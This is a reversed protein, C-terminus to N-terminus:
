KNSVPDEFSKEVLNAIDLRKERMVDVLAKGKLGFWEEKTAGVLNNTIVKLGMMRAECVIRSLTEPTSPFFVLAENVGLHRLFDQNNDSSILEYKIKKHVCYKIAVETKKNQIHSDMVAACKKKELFSLEELLDLTEEDWLNGSVNQINELETNLRVIESHFKSQCFVARANKYFDLNIIQDKPAKFNPYIAPDRSRLYKHDHEYIIYKCTRTILELVDRHFNIFNSIIFCDESHNLVFFSDVNHCHKKLVTNGRNELIKILEENNLEAGGIIDEAFFDSIFIYKENM